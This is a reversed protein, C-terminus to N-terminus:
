RVANVLLANTALYSALRKLDPLIYGSVLKLSSGCFRATTQWPWGALCSIITSCIGTITENTAISFNHCKPSHVKATKAM